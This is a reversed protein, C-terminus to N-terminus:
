RDEEKTLEDLVLDIADMLEGYSGQPDPRSEQEDTSGSSPSLLVRGLQSSVM